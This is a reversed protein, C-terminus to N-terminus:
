FVSLALYINFPFCHGPVSAILDLAGGQFGFHTNDISICVHLCLVFIVYSLDFFCSKLLRWQATTFSSAKYGSTM